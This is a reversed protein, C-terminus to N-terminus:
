RGRKFMKRQRLAGDKDFVQWEGVRKGDEYAGEDWLQGNDFYRKWLGTRSRAPKCPSATRGGGSGTATWDAMSM